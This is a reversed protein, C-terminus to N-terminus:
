AFAYGKPAKNSTKPHYPSIYIPSLINGREDKVEYLDVPDRFGPVHLSCVRKWSISGGDVLKLRQLYKENAPIGNVPVPNTPELGFEGIANPIEDYDGIADVFGLARLHDDIMFYESESLRSLMIKKFVFRAFRNIQDDSLDENHLKIGVLLSERDGGIYARTYAYVYTGRVSDASVGLEQAVERIEREVQERGGPFMKNGFDDFVSM